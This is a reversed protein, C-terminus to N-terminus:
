PAEVSLTGVMWPHVTCYYLYQGPALSATDLTFSGGPRITASDATASDFALGSDLVRAAPTGSWTISTVTHGYNNTTPNDFQVLDGQHVDIHEPGFGWYGEKEIGAPNFTVNSDIITVRAMNKETQARAVQTTHFGGQWGVLAIAGALGIGALARLRIGM